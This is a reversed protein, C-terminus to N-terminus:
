LKWSGRLLCRLSAKLSQTHSGDALYIPKHPRDRVVGAKLFYDICELDQSLMKIATCLAGSNYTACNVPSALDNLGAFTESGVGCTHTVPHRPVADGSRACWYAEGVTTTVLRAGLLCVSLQNLDPASYSKGATCPSNFKLRNARCSTPLWLSSRPHNVMAGGGFRLPAHSGIGACTGSFCFFFWVAPLEKKTFIWFALVSIAQQSRVETLASLKADHFDNAAGVSAEKTLGSVEGSLWTRKTVDGLTGYAIRAANLAITVPPGGDFILDNPLPEFTSLLLSDLTLFSLATQVFTLERTDRRPLGGNFGFRSDFCCLDCCVSLGASESSLTLFDAVRQQEFRVFLLKWM